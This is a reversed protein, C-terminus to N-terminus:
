VPKRKLDVSLKHQIVKPSIGLMGKHSWTFADLNEKLFQVLSMRIKPSLTTGIRNMKATEGEVLEVTELAEVKDEENEEIM